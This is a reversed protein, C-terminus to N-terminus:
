QVVTIRDELRLDLTVADPLRRRIEEFHQKFNQYRAAFNHDGLLLTLVHGGYPRAIKLNDRDGVDIESIDQTNAEGLEQQLRQMRRVREKRDALSASTNVGHLVPLHFRASVSPLLVGEEDILGYKSEPLAVFAVPTREWVRVQVRNPWLRAVSADKVWSVQRLSERREALPLLYVSKGLDDHFVAKIANASVYTAGAVALTSTDESGEPGSLAFRTNL